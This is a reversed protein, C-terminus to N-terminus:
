LPSLSIDNFVNLENSKLSIESYGISQVKLTITKKEELTIQIQGNFDAIYEKGTEALIVKAGPIEEGGNNTIKILVTKSSEKSTNKDNFAFTNLSLTLLTIIYLLIKM